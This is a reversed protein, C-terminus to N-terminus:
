WPRTGPPLGRQGWRRRRTFYVLGAILIVAVGGVAFGLPGLAFLAFVGIIMGTFMVRITVQRKFWPSVFRRRDADHRTLTARM